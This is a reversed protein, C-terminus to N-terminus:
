RRRRSQFSAKRMFTTDLGNLESMCLHYYDCRGCMFSMEAISRQSAIEKATYKAHKVVNDVFEEKFPFYQRRFFVRDKLGELIDEYGKSSQGNKKLARKFTRYDTDIRRRKSVNGNKLIQPVSPVKTRIEDWMFGSVPINVERLGWMYISTQLDRLRSEPDKFEKNTKRELLWQRGELDQVVADVKFVLGIKKDKFTTFPIPGFEKEVWLYKISDDRWHRYYNQLITYASEFVDEQEEEGDIQIGGYKDILQNFKERWDNGEASASTCEHIVDGLALAYSKAKPELRENYKYHYRQSCARWTNISSYSLVLDFTTGM